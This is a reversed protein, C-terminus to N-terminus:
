GGAAALDALADPDRGESVNVVCELMLPPESSAKLGRHDSVLSATTGNAAHECEELPRLQDDDQDDDQEHETSALQRLESSGEALGLLLELLTEGLSGLVVVGGALAVGGVLSTAATPPFWGGGRTTATGSGDSASPGGDWTGVQSSIARSWPRN